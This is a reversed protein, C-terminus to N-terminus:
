HLQVVQTDSSAGVDTTFTTTVTYSGTTTYIGANTPITFAFGAAAQVSASGAVTRITGDNTNKVQVDHIDLRGIQGDAVHFPNAASGDGVVSLPIMGFETDPGNGHMVATTSPDQPYTGKPTCRLMARPAYTPGPVQITRSYTLPATDGPVFATATATFMDPDILVACAAADGLVPTPWAPLQFHVDITTVTPESGVPTVEDKQATEGVSM